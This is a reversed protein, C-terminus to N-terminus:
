VPAPISRPLNNASLSAGGDGFSERIWRKEALRRNSRMLLRGAGWSYLGGYFDAREMDQLPGFSSYAKKLMYYLVLPHAWLPVDPGGSYDPTTPYANYFVQLDNGSIVDALFGDDSPGIPTADEIDVLFGGDDGIVFGYPNGSSAEATTSAAPVPYLGIQGNLEDLYYYRPTATYQEWWRNTQRIGSVATPFIKDGDYSARWVRMCDEPLDYKGTSATVILVDRKDLLRCKAALDRVAEDGWAHATAIPYEPWPCDNATTKCLIDYFITDIESWTM